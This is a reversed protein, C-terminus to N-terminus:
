LDNADRNMRITKEARRRLTCPSHRFIANAKHAARREGSAPEFSHKTGHAMYALVARFM